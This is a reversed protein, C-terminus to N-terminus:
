FPPLPPYIFAARFRPIKAYDISAGLDRNGSVPSVREPLLPDTRPAPRARRQEGRSEEGLRSVSRRRELVFAARLYRTAKSPHLRQSAEHSFRAACHM